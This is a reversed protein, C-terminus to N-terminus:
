VGAYVMGVFDAPAMLFHGFKHDFELTPKEAVCAALSSGQQKLTAIRSRVTTLMTHFESLQARDGVPGHGPIIITSDKVRALASEVAQITGDISGGTSYDIFPYHGNWWIDGVHIVDPEVFEVLIDSDTHAPRFAELLLTTHNLHLKLTQKFDIIPLAGAPSPPFTFQWGEVRTSNALRRRTNEQAIILAGEAHLWENGDTHDFHWHSNILFRIPDASIAALAPAVQRRATSIGADVLIKGDPGHLVAINGGAGFLVSINGRLPQTSIKAAAAQRKMLSVVGEDGGAARAAGMLRRPSILAAATALGAGIAFERRSITSIPHM